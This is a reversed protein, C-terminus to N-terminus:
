DGVPLSKPTRKQFYNSFESLKNSASAFARRRETQLKVCKFVASGRNTMRMFSDAISTEQLRIEMRSCKEHLLKLQVEKRAFAKRRFYRKIKSNMRVQKIM